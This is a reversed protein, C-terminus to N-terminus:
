TIYDKKGKKKMETADLFVFIDSFVLFKLERRQKQRDANGPSMTWESVEFIGDRALRRHSSPPFPLLHPLSSPVSPSPFSPSTFPRLFFFPPSFSSSPHPLSM